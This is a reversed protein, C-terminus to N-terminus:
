FCGGKVEMFKSEKRKRDLEAGSRLSLNVGVGGPFVPGFPFTGICRQNQVYGMLQSPLPCDICQAFADPGTILSHTQEQTYIGLQLLNGYCSWCPAATPLKASLHLFAM